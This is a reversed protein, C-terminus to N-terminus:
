LSVRGSAALLLTHARRGEVGFAALDTVSKFSAIYDKAMLEIGFRGAVPLAVGAALALAFNTASENVAVGLVSTNISYHALGPGVQAFAVSGTQARGLLLQGRVAADAFWVGGGPVSASGLLPIGTLQWAPRTYTGALVVSLSRHVSVRVQLAGAVADGSSFRLGGPGTFYAGSTALGGGGAIEVRSTRPQVQAGALAPALMLALTLYIPHPRMGAM